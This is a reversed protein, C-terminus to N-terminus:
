RGLSQWESRAAAAVPPGVPDCLNVVPYGSYSPMSWLEAPDGSLRNIQVPGLEIKMSFQATPCSIEVQGPMVLNSVPDTRHRSAISRAVMQGQADFIRQGVVWGHQTDVVTVYTIPGEITERITCIEVRDGTPSFFPGQHPLAPDLGATGMADIVLHPDIPLLQRARSSAFQDHRCFYIAPPQNRKVWFWFLQDNSGVDLEPGTLGTEARLRFRGPRQFALNAKLSPLGPSSLTARNSSYSHIQANNRNVVEIVQELSATSPLVPPAPPPFPSMMGPCSAGSLGMLGVAVLLLLRTRYGDM